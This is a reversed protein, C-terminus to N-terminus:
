IQEPMEIPEAGSLASQLREARFPIGLAGEVRHSPRGGTDDSFDIVAVDGGWVWSGVSGSAGLGLTYRGPRFTDPPLVFRSVFSGARMATWEPSDACSALHFGDRFIVLNLDLQRFTSTAFGHVEIELESLPDLIDAPEGNQKCAIKEFRIDAALPGTFDAVHLARVSTAFSREYFLVAQDVPGDYTLAGRDLVVARTCLNRVAALNHSVFLVTRGRRAVDSMKSLSKRQFSADGVALVEDVLLVDAELFAAVAFALRVYMGSSYRKVPTDVFREIEAFVVIEDFKAVAERRTMGLIAANLFVNERGTLEPHFGTGVELLSAVRGHMVVRGRTPATIRTLIKLLTSKGAGNRGIVGLVEGDAVSFNIDRLAWFRDTTSSRGRLSKLRKGPASFFDVITDYLTDRQQVAAGITYEKWLDSVEVTSTSM